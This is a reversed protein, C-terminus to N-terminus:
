HIQTWHYTNKFNLKIFIKADSLWNLTESILSLSHHNKVTIQNLERYNVYLCLDNNKKLAFLVSTNASSVSHQIWNKILIDNLYKQLIKLETESYNMHLNIKISKLLMIMSHMLLFINQKKKQFYMQISLMILLYWWHHASM